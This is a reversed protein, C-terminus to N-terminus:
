RRQHHCIKENKEEILQLYLNKLREAHIRVHYHKNLVEEAQSCMKERLQQETLCKELLHHFSAPNNLDFLWGTKGHDILQSPGPTQSSLVITKAAWAELIVTGFSEALSPLILANAMQYLGALLPNDPALGPIVMVSQSIGLKHKEREFDQFYNKDSIGGIFMVVLNPFRTLLMPIQRLLWIQNKVPDIRGVDLLIKKEKLQPYTKLVLDTKDEQFPAPDSLCPIVMVKKGPYNESIMDAEAQNVTIIADANQVVERSGFLYGFWKGWDLGKESPERLSKKAEECLLYKGGHLTLVFPIGRWRAAQYSAAGIRGMTHSHILDASEQCLKWPLDLSIFNGGISLYRERNERSIGMIPVIARYEELRFSQKSLPNDELESKKGPFYFVSEVNRDRLAKALFSVYTEVGGWERPRYKRLVNVVEIM